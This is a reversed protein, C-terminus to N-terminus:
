KVNKVLESGGGKKGVKSKKPKKATISRKVNKQLETGSFQRNNSLISKM